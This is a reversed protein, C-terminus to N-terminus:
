KKITKLEEQYQQVRRQYRDYMATDIPSLKGHQSQKKIDLAFLEDEVREQRLQVVQSQFQGKLTDVDAASAYHSDLGWISGLISVIGAITAGAVKLNIEAM